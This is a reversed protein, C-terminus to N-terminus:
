FKRFRYYIDRSLKQLRPEFKDANIVSDEYSNFVIRIDNLFNQLEHPM